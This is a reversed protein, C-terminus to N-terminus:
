EQLLSKLRCIHEKTNFTHLCVRLSEHGKQVTPSTLARIDFGEEALKQSLKKVAHNGPTKVAHIHTTSGLEKILTQLYLRETDM